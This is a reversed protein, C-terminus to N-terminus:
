VYEEVWIKTTSASNSKLAVLPTGLFPSLGGPTDINGASGANGLPALGGGSHINHKDGFEYQSVAAPLVESDTLISATNAFPSLAYGQLGQLLGANATPDEYINVYAPSTTLRITTLAGGSGNLSYQTRKPNTQPM